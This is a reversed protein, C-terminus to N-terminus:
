EGKVTAGSDTACLLAIMYIVFFCLAITCVAAIHTVPLSDNRNLAIQVPLGAGGMIGSNALPVSWLFIPYFIPKVYDRMKFVLCAALMAAGANVFAWWVPFKMMVFPQPGYYMFTSTNLGPIELITEIVVLVVYMIFIGRTTIGKIFRGYAFCSLGGLFWLYALFGFLPVSRNFARWVAHMGEPPYIGLGLLQSLPEAMYAIGASLFLYIPLLSKQKWAVWLVLATTLILPPLQMMEFQSQLAQDM